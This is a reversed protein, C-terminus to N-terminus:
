ESLSVAFLVLYALWNKHYFRKHNAMLMADIVTNLSRLGLLLVGALIPRCNIGTQQTRRNAINFSYFPM